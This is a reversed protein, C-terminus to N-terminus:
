TPMELWNNNATPFQPFHFVPGDWKGRRGYKFLVGEEMNM